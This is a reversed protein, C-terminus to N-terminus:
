VPVFGVEYYIHFNSYLLQPAGDLHAFAQGEYLLDGNPTEHVLSWFKSEPMDPSLDKFYFDNLWIEDAQVGKDSAVNFNKITDFNSIGVVSPSSFIFHDTAPGGILTDNGLGGELSDVIALGTPQTGGCLTDDGAGGHLEDSFRGGTIVDKGNGGWFEVSEVNVVTTGVFVSGEPGGLQFGGDGIDQKVAPNTLDLHLNNTSEARYIQATDYGNGGDIADFGDFSVIYDNHDGGDLWDNGKGGDIVDQGAGGHIVDDYDGGVIHDKGSGAWFSLKEIHALTTGDGIDQPTPSDTKLAFNFSMTASDRYLWVADIGAGGDITDPDVSVFEDDGGNGYLFDHGSGGDLFDYKNGGKLTDSGGEGHLYNNGIGGAVVDSEGGGSFVLSEVGTITTGDQLTATKAPDSLDLSLSAWGYQTFDRQLFLMDYGTGGDIHDVPYGGFPDMVSFITDNGGEGNLWNEGLDGHIEDNGDGGHITDNGDLGYIQDDASTGILIDSAASGIKKM